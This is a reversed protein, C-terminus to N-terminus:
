SDQRTKVVRSVDFGQAAAKDILMKYTSEDLRPARSLIWLYKRDPTGVLSYSYDPALDIVWYDGWVAPIWSLWAPAFRDELKSTPGDKDALRAKGEATDVQGDSKRCENIVRIEGKEILSYTAAVEGACKKQFSNPLRAIEYWKGVYRTLDVAPVVELTKQDKTKAAALTYASAAVIIAFLVKKM